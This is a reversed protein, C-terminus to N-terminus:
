LPVIDQHVLRYETGPEPLTYTNETQSPRARNDTPLVEYQTVVLRFPGPGNLPVNRASWTVSGTTARQPTLRIPAGVSDWGLADDDIAWNRRQVLLEAIGPAAAYSKAARTYSYGTLEVSDLGSSGRVVTLGRGPELSMIQTTVITSIFLDTLSDPQYRALVLRIMPTYAAGTDLRIDCYWTDRALDFAVPHGVVNVYDDHEQLFVQGGSQTANLFTSMRPYRSPLAPGDFVPDAGWESVFPAEDPVITGDDYEAARSTIVGLLEGIGSSWWPRAIFVRLSSPGRTSITTEGSADSEWGYIPVIGTITPPEPRASSLVDVQYPRESSVSLPTGEPYCEAFASSAVASYTVSHHKTDFLEHIFGLNNTLTDSYEQGQPLTVANQNPGYFYEPTVTLSAVPSDTTKRLAPYPTGPGQLEGAVPDDVPDSWSAVVDIRATSKPSWTIEGRGRVVTSGVDTRGVYLLSLEPTLLPKQVAYVFDLYVNPTIPWSKGQAIDGDPPFSMMNPLALLAVDGPDLTATLSSHVHDGPTLTFTIVRRDNDVNVGLTTGAVLEIGFPRYDPWSHGDAPSFDVTQYITEFDNNPSILLAAGRALPDPLYPVPQDLPITPPQVTPDSPPDPYTYSERPVFSGYTTPDPLGQANDFLGHAEAFPQSVRHPYMARFSSIDKDVDRIVFRKLSEGLRQISQPFLDPTAVPEYRGYRLPKTIRRDTPADNLAVKHNAVDVIRIRLTYDHGFRLPPLRADPAHNTITIDLPSSGSSLASDPDVLPTGPRPVANSWGNYRLFSESVNAQQADADDPSSQLRPPSQTAAEDFPASTPANLTVSGSKYSIIREATSHWVNTATDLVDLIYGRALDEATLDPLASADGSAVAVAAADSLQFARALQDALNAGLNIQTVTLGNSRLSAPPMPTSADTSGDASAGSAADATKVSVYVSVAKGPSKGLQVNKAFQAARLADGDVDNTHVGYTTPDYVTLLGAAIYNTSSYATFTGDPPITCATRAILQTFDFRGGSSVRPARAARSRRARRAASQDRAPAILAVAVYFLDIQQSSFIQGEASNEQYPVTLDFVLGLARQLVGHEGIFTLASTFDITGVGPTPQPGAGPMHYYAQAAFADTVSANTFDNAHPVTGGRSRARREHKLQEFQGQAVVGVLGDTVSQYVSSVTALDPVETLSYQSFQGTVFDTVQKAPYSVIPINRFQEAVSAESRSEARLGAGTRGRPRRISATSTDYRTSPPFLSAWFAVNTGSADLPVQQTSVLNGNADAIAIEWVAPEYNGDGAQYTALTAPWNEFDTGQITGSGGSLEPSLLVSLSFTNSNPDAGAPIATVKIIESFTM